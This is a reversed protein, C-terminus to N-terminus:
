EPIPRKFYWALQIPVEVDPGSDDRVIERAVVTTSVLEWGQRGLMALVDMHNESKPKVVDFYNDAPSNVM